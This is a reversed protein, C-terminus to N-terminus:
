EVYEGEESRHSLLTSFSLEGDKRAREKRDGIKGSCGKDRISPLCLTRSLIAHQARMKREPTHYHKMVIQESMTSM